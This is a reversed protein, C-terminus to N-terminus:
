QYISEPMRGSSDPIFKLFSIFFVSNLTYVLNPSFLSLILFGSLNRFHQRSLDTLTPEDYRRIGTDM